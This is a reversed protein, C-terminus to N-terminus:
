VSCKGWRKRRAIRFILGKSTTLVRLCIMIPRVGPAVLVGIAVDAVVDWAADIADELRLVHVTPVLPATLSEPVKPCIRCMTWRSPIVPSHFPFKVLITFTPGAHTIESTQQDINTAHM